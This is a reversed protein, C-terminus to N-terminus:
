IIQIPAYFPYTTITNQVRVCNHRGDCKCTLTIHLQSNLKFLLLIIHIAVM